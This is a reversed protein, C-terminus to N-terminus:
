LRMTSLMCRRKLANVQTPIPASYVVANGASVMIIAHNIVTSTPNTTPTISNIVGFPVYEILLTGDDGSM